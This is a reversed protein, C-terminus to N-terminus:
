FGSLKTSIKSIINKRSKIEQTKNNIIKGLDSQISSFISSSTNLIKESIIKLIYDVNEDLMQIENFANSCRIIISKTLILSLMSGKKNFEKLDDPNLKNLENKIVAYTKNNMPFIMAIKSLIRQIKISDFIGETLSNIISTSNSLFNKYNREFNNHMKDGEISGKFKDTQIEKSLGKKISNLLIYDITKNGTILSKKFWGSNVNLFVEFVYGIYINLNIQDLRNFNLSNGNSNDDYIELLELTLDSNKSYKKLAYSNLSKDKISLSTLYLINLERTLFKQEGNSLKSFQGKLNVSSQFKERIYMLSTEIM